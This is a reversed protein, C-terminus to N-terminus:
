HSKYYELNDKIVIDIPSYNIKAPVKGLSLYNFLSIVSNYGQDEPKQGILFSIVGKELFEINDKILDYGGLFLKKNKEELFRAAKFVKSNTVFVGSIDQFNRFTSELTVDPEGPLTIDIESFLVDVNKLNSENQFFSLFGKERHILHLNINNGSAFKLVLIKSNEAVGLHMIRAATFGSQMANQGFYSINNCNELNADIFVYPISRSDLEKVFDVVTLQFLPNFIVGDFDQELIKNFAKVFTAEKSLDFFIIKVEANFTGVEQAAKQIGQLPKDWYNSNSDSKPLLVAIKIKKKSALSKALLNPTYNMKTVIELVHKRTDESVEGRNHLVRDVTGESVKALAAIDKIRIKKNGAM